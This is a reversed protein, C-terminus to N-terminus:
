RAAATRVGVREQLETISERMADADIEHVDVPDGPARILTITLRGGLHQRFEELGDLLEQTRALAAHSQLLRLDSLCGLVQETHEESLGLVRRSYLCDIALGIAVADGHSLRFDTMAELKHASWHGFDLPRAELAEFPDGGETIHKLHWLASEKIVPLAADMDREAIRSANECLADFADADKLLFVKVAESFGARFAGDPLTELLKADNVVAWPVAFSGKWNKKGFLNVANKVGIGSDDQALTTTPLRVLRVGRHAVAAAFGVADLVAGGGVVLVYNRRDVDLHNIRALLRQVVEPDNKCGEGGDVRVVGGVQELRDPHREFLDTIREVLGGPGPDGDAVGGDVVAMVRVKQDTPELVDLLAQEDDGLVDTTFRLRHRFPVAFDADFSSTTPSDPAEPMLLIRPTSGTGARQLALLPPPGPGGGHALEQIERHPFRKPAAHM